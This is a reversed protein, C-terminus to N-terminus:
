SDDRMKTYNYRIIKEAQNLWELRAGGYMMEVTSVMLPIKYNWNKPIKNAYIVKVDYYNYDCTKTKGTIDFHVIDKDQFKSLDVKLTGPNYICVPWRDTLEAYDFILDLSGPETSPIHIERDPGFLDLLEPYKINKDITYGFVGANDVLRIVNDLGFGGMHTEIYDKLTSEANIIDFKNNDIVLKIEYPTKEASIIKNYLEQVQTDIEFTKGHAWNVLYNVNYETIGLEWLKKEHDWMARGQGSDKLTRLENIWDQHYPFRVLINNDEIWIRQSRDIKRLPMRWVPNEEVPSIDIGHNAYQRRYKLVLKVALEGQKDTLAQNSWVTSNAMSEVINVDYRALSFQYKSSNFIVGTNTSPDYGALLEIYDEVHTFKLM